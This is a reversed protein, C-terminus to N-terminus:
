RTSGSAAVSEGDDFVLKMEPHRMAALRSRFPGTFGRRERPRLDGLGRGLLAYPAPLNLGIGCDRRGDYKVVRGILTGEIM